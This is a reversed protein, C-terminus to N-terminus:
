SLMLIQEGARGDHAFTLHDGASAPTARMTHATVGTKFAAIQCADAAHQAWVLAFEADRTFVVFLRRRDASVPSRRENDFPDPM